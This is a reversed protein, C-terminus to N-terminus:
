FVLSDLFREFVALEREYIDSEAQFTIIIAQGRRITLIDLGAVVVPVGELFTGTERTVFTYFMSLAEVDNPLIYPEIPSGGYNSLTQSRSLTLSNFVNQEDTDDSVPRVSVQITTKFGLHSMDRVRFVYDGSTDLLWDQPYLAQIGAQVNAYPVVATLADERLRLGIAFFAVALIVSLYYSWRQRWTLKSGSAGFEEIFQM